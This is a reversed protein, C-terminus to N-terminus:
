FRLTIDKIGRSNYAHLSQFFLVASPCKHKICNNLCFYILYMELKLMIQEESM